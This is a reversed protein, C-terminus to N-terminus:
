SSQLSSRAPRYAAIIPWPPQGPTEVVKRLRGDAHVFSAGCEIALHAQGPAVVCLLVDGSQRRDASLRDFFRCLERDLEAQSHRRLRYDRRVTAAPIGFVELVLGVCDLGLGVERGQPRFHVGVLSRARNVAAAPWDTM